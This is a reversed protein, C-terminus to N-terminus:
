PETGVTKLDPLLKHEYIVFGLLKITRTGSALPKFGWRFGVMHDIGLAALTNYQYLMTGPTIPIDVITHPAFIGYLRHPESEIRMHNIAPTSGVEVVGDKLIILFASKDTAPCARYFDTASGFFYANTDATLTMTWRNSDYSTYAPFAASPTTVYRIAAPILPLIGLTGEQSPYTYDKRKPFTAKAIRAFTLVLARQPMVTEDAIVKSVRRIGRVYENFCRNIHRIEATDLDALDVERRGYYYIPTRAIHARRRALVEPEGELLEDEALAEVMELSERVAEELSVAM